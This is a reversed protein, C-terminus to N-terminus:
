NNEIYEAEINFYIRKVNKETDGMRRYFPTGKKIWITGNDTKLLKGGRTIYDRIAHAKQTVWLWSTSKHWLSATLSVSSDFSDYSVSYTIYPMTADDPVSNEDYANVGFSSWFDQIAQEADM